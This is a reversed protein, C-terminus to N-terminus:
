RNSIVGIFALALWFINLVVPQWNKQASADLIIGVAGIGNLLHYQWTPGDFVSLTLLAYALVIAVVGIWGATETLTTPKLRM